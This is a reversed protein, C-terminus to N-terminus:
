LSRQRLAEYLIVGAAVSVNLSGIKGHMPIAALHDARKLLADNIGDEESGMIVVTPKTYDPTYIDEETKETCAVSQYGNEILYQLTTKLNQERCIPVRLLAGTSTKLADGNVPAAGQKGIIIADVGVCEATRTIAGFNRVDTVRDLMLILPAKDKEALAPIIEKINQLSVPAIHAVVGQHNQNRKVERNLKEIPVYKLPIDKVRCLEKLQHSLGGALGKQIFIKDIEKGSEIAEIVPRIGHILNTQWESKNTEKM